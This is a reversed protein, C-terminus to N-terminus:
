RGEGFFLGAWPPSALTWDIGACTQCIQDIDEFDYKKEKMIDSIAEALTEQGIPRFLLHGKGRLQQEQPRFESCKQQGSAVLEIPQIRRLSDWFYTCQETFQDLQEPEPRVREWDKDLQHKTQLLIKNCNYVTELTTFCEMAIIKGEDDQGSPPLSRSKYWIKDQLVPHERVLRRTVIAFGDDEDMTINESKTTGKAYRNLHTFVRRSSEIGQETDEHRIIVISLDDQKVDNNGNTIAETISALRHQGDLVFYDETGTFRLVGLEFADVPVMQNPEAMELPVFEPEGGKLAVIIPGYFRYDHKLYDVMPAVRSSLGRQMRQDLARASVEFLENPPKITRVADAAKMTTIYYDRDGFKGRIAPSFTLSM